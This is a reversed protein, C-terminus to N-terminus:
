ACVPIRNCLLGHSRRSDTALQFMTLYYAKRADADDTKELGDTKMLRDQCCWLTLHDMDLLYVRDAPINCDWGIDIGMHDISTFGTSATGTTGTKVAQSNCTNLWDIYLEASMMICDPKRGNKSMKVIAATLDNQTLPKGPFAAPPSDPNMMQWAAYGGDDIYPLWEPCDAPDIGGLERNSIILDLGIVEKPNSGDNLMFDANWRAITSEETQKIKTPLLGVAAYKGTNTCEEFGCITLSTQYQTWHYDVASIGDFPKCQFSDYMSYYGGNPNDGLIVPIVLSRGGELKKKTRDKIKDWFTNITFFNDVIENGHYQLTTATIQDYNPNGVM